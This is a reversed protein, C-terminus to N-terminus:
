SPDGRNPGSRYLLWRLGGKSSVQEIEQITEPRRALKRICLILKNRAGKTVNQLLCIFVYFLVRPLGRPSHYHLSSESVKSELYCENIELMQQYNLEAFLPQYKHLRLSKLWVPVDSFSLIFPSHNCKVQGSEKHTGLVTGQPM